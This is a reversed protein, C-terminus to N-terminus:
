MKDKIRLMIDALTKSADFYNNLQNKMANNNNGLLEKLENLDSYMESVFADNDLPTVAEISAVYVLDAIKSLECLVDPPMSREGIEFKQLSSKSWHLTEALEDQTLNNNARYKKVFERLEQSKGVSALEALLNGGFIATDSTENKSCPNITHIVEM